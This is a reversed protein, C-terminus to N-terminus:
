FNLRSGGMFTHFLTAPAYVLPIIVNLRFAVRLLSLLSWLELMM